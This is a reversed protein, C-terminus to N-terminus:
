FHLGGTDLRRFIPGGMQAFLGGVQGCHVTRHVYYEIWTYEMQGVWVTGDM